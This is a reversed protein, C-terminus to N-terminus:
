RGKAHPIARTVADVSPLPIEFNSQRWFPEIESYTYLHAKGVKGVCNLVGGNKRFEAIKGRITSEAVKTLAVMEKVTLRIEDTLGTSTKRDTPRTKVSRKRLELEQRMRDHNAVLDFETDLAIRDSEAWRDRLHEVVEYFGEQFRLYISESVGPFNECEVLIECAQDIEGRWCHKIIATVISKTQNTGFLQMRKAYIAWFSDDIETHERLLNSISNCFEQSRNLQLVDDLFVISLTDRLHQNFAIAEVDRLRTLEEDRESREARQQEIRKQRRVQSLDM